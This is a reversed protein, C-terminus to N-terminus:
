LEHPWLSNSIVSRTVSLVWGQLCTTIDWYRKVSRVGFALSVFAFISLHFWILSFLKQITFSVTKCQFPLMNVPSPIHLDYIQYPALVWFIRSALFNMWTKQLMKFSFRFSSKPWGLIYIYLVWIIWCFFLCSQNFFQCLVQISIKKFFACLHAVHMLLHEVDSIILSICILVVILSWRGDILIAIISFVPFVLHQLLHPSFPIRMCQQHSWLNTCGGHFAIHLNRLFILVPSVM